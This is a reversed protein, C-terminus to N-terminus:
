YANIPDSKGVVEIQFQVSQLMAQTITKAHSSDRESYRVILSSGVAVTKNNYYQAAKETNYKEVINTSPTITFLSGSSSRITINAGDLSTVVGQIEKFSGESVKTSGQYLDISAAYGTLCSDDPNGFCAQREALSQWAFQDYNEFPMSLKVVAVLTTEKETSSMGCSQESCGERPVMHKVDSTIYVVSDGAKIGSAAVQQADVIYKVASNTDLTVAPQMYKEQAAFTITEDDVSAVQAAMSVTLSNLDYPEAHSEGYTSKMPYTKQAWSQIAALECHAQVVGPVQEATITANRKLEYRSALADDGCSSFSFAIESRGSVSTTSETVNAQPKPWLLQYAAVATGSVLLVSGLAIAIIALKPLHRIKMFLTEKNTSDMTRIQATFIEDSKILRMVNDTFVSDKAAPGAAILAAIFQSDKMSTEGAATSKGSSDM